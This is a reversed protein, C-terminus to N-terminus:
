EHDIVKTELTPALLGLQQISQIGLSKALGDVYAEIEIKASATAAELTEEAQKVVFQMNSPLNAVRISLNRHIEKADKMGVKGSEIMEGLRAVQDQIDAMARLSSEKIERHMMDAKSEIKKIGPMEEIYTGPKPAYRLTVPTGSGSGSSTIFQAFQSHSMEFSVVTNQLSQSGHIWDNSLNRNLVARKVEIRIRHPHNLDSGFLVPNGGSVTTLSISGYADHSYEDGGMPGEKTTQVPAVDQIKSMSNKRLVQMYELIWHIGM